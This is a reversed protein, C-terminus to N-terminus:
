ASPLRRESHRKLVVYEGEIVRPDSPTPTAQAAQVPRQGRLLLSRGLLVIAVVGALALAFLSAVGIMAVALVAVGARALPHRPRRLHLM